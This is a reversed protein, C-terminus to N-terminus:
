LKPLRKLGALARRLTAAALVTPKQKFKVKTLGLDLVKLKGDASYGVNGAHIDHWAIGAARLKEGARFTACVPSAVHGRACEEYLKEAYYQGDSDDLSAIILETRGGNLLSTEFASLSRLRELELAYVTTRQKNERFVSKQKLTYTAYIKPVVGTEQAKILAAVDAADRTFKIVRTPDDPKPWVGAFTGTGIPVPGPEKGKFLTRRQNPTLCVEYAGEPYHHQARGAILCGAKGEGPPKLKARKAAIRAAIGSGVSLARPVRKVPKASARASATYSTRPAPTRKLKTM